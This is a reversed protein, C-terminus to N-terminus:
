EQGQRPQQGAPQALVHQRDATPTQAGPDRRGRGYQAPQAAQRRISRAPRSGTQAHGGTFQHQDRRRLGNASRGHQSQACSWRAARESGINGYPDDRGEAARAAFLDLFRQFGGEFTGLRVTRSHVRAWFWAMTVDKYLDGFKSILMPRWLMEYAAKGMTRTLWAEATYKEMPQWNTTLRLYLGVCGFRIKPSWPLNPFFFMSVPNDFLYPKGRSWMSTRPRPFLVKDSLGLEDILGLIAKDTQFWHHNTKGTSNITM